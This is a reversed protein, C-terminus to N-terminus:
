RYALWCRKLRRKGKVRVWLGRNRKFVDNISGRATNIWCLLKKRLKIIQKPYSFRTQQGHLPLGTEWCHRCSRYRGRSAAARVRSGTGLQDATLSEIDPRAVAVERVNSFTCVAHNPLIRKYKNYVHISNNNKRTNYNHKKQQKSKNM